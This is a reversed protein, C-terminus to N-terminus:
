DEEYLHIDLGNSSWQEPRIRQGELNSLHINVHYKHPSVMLTINRMEGSGVNEFTITVNNMTSEVGIVKPYKDNM